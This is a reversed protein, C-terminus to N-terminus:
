VVGMRSDVTFHCEVFVEVDQISDNFIALETTNTTAACFTKNKGITTTYNSAFAIGIPSSGSAVSPTSGNRLGFIKINNSTGNDPNYITIIPTTIQTPYCIEFSFSRLGASTPSVSNRVAPRGTHYANVNTATAIAVGQNYTKYFEQQCLSLTELKTLQCPPCTSNGQVLNIYRIDLGNSTTATSVVIALFTATTSASTTSTDYGTINYVNETTSLAITTLNAQNNKVKTWTGNAGGSGVTPTGDSGISVILSNPLTPVTADTTWYLNVQATVAGGVSKGMLQVCQNKYLMERAIEAPMYQILAIQGSLAMTSKLGLTDASRAFSVTNNASQFCITKDWVYFNSGTKTSISENFQAPNKPFDWGVLANHESKNTLLPKYYHFSHDVYRSESEQIYDILSLQNEASLFQVSTIQVLAGVPISLSIDVYGSSPSDSNIVGDIQANGIFQNFQNDSTTTISVLPYSDGNSPVYNLQLNHQLADQSACTISASAFGNAFLRPSNVFRQFINCDTVSLATFQLAYSPSTPITTSTISIQTVTFTGTGNTLVYWDPAIQTIVNSGSVNYTTGAPNFLIDSFQPNSIQNDSSDFTTSDSNNQSVNPPWAPVTPNILVDDADHMEIYYLDIQGTDADSPTNEFPFLYLNIINGDGDVFQGTANTRVPNSIQIFTNSGDNTLKYVPKLVTRSVDRYFYIYGDALYEATTPNVLCSQLNLVYYFNNNPLPV